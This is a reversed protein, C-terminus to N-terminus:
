AKVNKFLSCVVKIDAYGKERMMKHVENLEYEISELKPKDWYGILHVLEELDETFFIVWYKCEGLKDKESRVKMKLEKFPALM